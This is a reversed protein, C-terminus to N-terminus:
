DSSEAGLTQQIVDLMTEKEMAGPVYGMLKGDARILWTTPLSTAGYTNFVEGTTDMLTPYTIGREALFDMIGQADTDDYVGPSGVGLIVVDGQNEGM